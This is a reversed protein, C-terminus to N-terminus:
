DDQRGFRWEVSETGGRLYVVPRGDHYGAELHITEDALLALWSSFELTAMLKATTDDDTM